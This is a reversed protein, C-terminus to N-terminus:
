KLDSEKVFMKGVIFGKRVTNKNHAQKLTEQLELGLQQHLVVLAVMVDGLELKVNDQENVALAQNLELIEEVIKKIQDFPNLKDIGNKISWRNIDAILYKM